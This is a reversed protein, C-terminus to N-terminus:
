RPASAERSQRAREVIYGAAILVLGLVVAGWTLVLQTTTTPPASEGPRVDPAPTFMLRGIGQALVFAGVGLSAVLPRTWELPPVEGYEAASATTALVPRNACEGRHPKGCRRHIALGCRSCNKGDIDVLITKRCHACASGVIPQLQM